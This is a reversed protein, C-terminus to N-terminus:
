DIRLLALRFSADCMRVEILQCEFFEQTERGYMRPMVSRKDARSLRAGLSRRRSM